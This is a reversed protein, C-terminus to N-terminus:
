IGRYRFKRKLKVWRIKAKIWWIGFLL